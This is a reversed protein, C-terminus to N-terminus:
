CRTFRTELASVRKGRGPAGAERSPVVLRDRWVVYRAQATLKREIAAFLQAADRAHAFHKEAAEAVAISKLGFGPNYVEIQRDDDAAVIDRYM